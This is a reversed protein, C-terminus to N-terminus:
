ARPLDREGLVVGPRARRRIEALDGSFGKGGVGQAEWCGPVRIRMKNPLPVDPRYWHEKEGRKKPDTAFDWEGDLSMTWRLKSRLAPNVVAPTAERGGEQAWAGLAPILLMGLVPWLRMGAKMM